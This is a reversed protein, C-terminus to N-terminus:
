YLAYLIPLVSDSRSYITLSIYNKLLSSVFFLDTCSALILPINSPKLRTLPVPSTAPIASRNDTWLLLTSHESNSTEVPVLCSKGMWGECHLLRTFYFYGKGLNWHTVAVRSRATHFAFDSAVVCMPRSRTYFTNFRAFPFPWTM